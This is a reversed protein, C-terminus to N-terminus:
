LNLTLLGRLSTLQALSKNSVIILFYIRVELFWMEFAKEYCEKSPM